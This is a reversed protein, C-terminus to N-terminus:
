YRRDALPDGSLSLTLSSSGTSLGLTTSADSELLWASSTSSTLGRSLSQNTVSTLVAKELYQVVAERLAKNSVWSRMSGDMGSPTNERWRHVGDSRTNWQQPADGTFKKKIYAHMIFSEQTKMGKSAKQEPMKRVRFTAGVWSWGFLQVYILAKWTNHVVKAM